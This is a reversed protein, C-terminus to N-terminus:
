SELNRELRMKNGRSLTYGISRSRLPLFLFFRLKNFSCRSVRQIQYCQYLFIPQIQSDEEEERRELSLSRYFHKRDIPTLVVRPLFHSVTSEISGDRSYTRELIRIQMPSHLRLTYAFFRLFLPPSLSSTRGKILTGEDRSEVGRDARFSRTLRRRPRHLFSSPILTGIVLNKSDQDRGTGRNGTSSNARAPPLRDSELM